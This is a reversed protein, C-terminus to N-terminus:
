SAGKAQTRVGSLVEFAEDGVIGKLAAFKEDSMSIMMGVVAQGLLQEQTEGSSQAPGIEVGLKKQLYPGLFQMVQTVATKQLVEKRQEKLEAIKREHEFNLVKDQAERMAFAQNELALIQAQQGEIIKHMLNYIDDFGKAHKDFMRASQTQEQALLDRAARLLDSLANEPTKEGHEAQYDDVVSEPFVPVNAAAGPRVTPKPIRGTAELIRLKSVSIGLRKAAEARTLLAPSDNESENETEGQTEGENKGM